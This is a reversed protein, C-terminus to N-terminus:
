TLNVSALMNKLNVNLIQIYTARTKEDDLDKLNMEKTIKIVAELQHKTEDFEFNCQLTTPVKLPLTGWIMQGSHALYGIKEKLLKRISPIARKYLASDQPINEPLAFSYQYIKSKDPDTTIEYYNTFFKVSKVNKFSGDSKGNRKPMLQYDAQM